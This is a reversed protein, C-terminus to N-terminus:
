PEFGFVNKFDIEPKNEEEYEKSMANIVDDIPMDEEIEDVTRKNHTEGLSKLIVDLKDSIGKLKIDEDTKICDKIYRSKHSQASIKDWVLRDEPNSLNFRITITEYKNM